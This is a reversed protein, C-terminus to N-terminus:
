GKRGRAKGPRLSTRYERGLKMAKEHAPDDAFSGAVREWWPAGPQGTGEVMSKLRAVERELVMLRAELEIAAM